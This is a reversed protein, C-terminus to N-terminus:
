SLGRSKARDKLKKSIKDAREENLSPGKMYCDCDPHMNTINEKDKKTLFVGINEKDADYVVGRICILM